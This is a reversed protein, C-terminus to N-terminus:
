ASVRALEEDDAIGITRAKELHALSDTYDKTEFESLGLFGWAAGLGPSLEVIKRLAPIADTYHDQDYQMTGLYWWGEAWDPRLAVARRYGTIADDARGAERPASAADALAQFNDQAELGAAGTLVLLAVCGCVVARRLNERLM